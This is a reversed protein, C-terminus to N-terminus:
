KGIGSLVQENVTVTYKKRLQDIWSKELFNQYDATVLGKSEEFTKLDPPLIAKM